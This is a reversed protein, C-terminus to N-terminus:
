KTDHIKVNAGCLSNLEGIALGHGDFQEGGTLGAVADPGGDAISAHVDLYITGARGKGAAIVTKRHGDAAHLYVACDGFGVVAIGVGVM